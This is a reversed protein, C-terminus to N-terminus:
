NHRIAVPPRNVSPLKEHGRLRERQLAAPRGSHSSQQRPEGGVDTEVRIQESKAIGFWGPIETQWRARRRAASGIERKAAPHVPDRAGMEDVIVDADRASM